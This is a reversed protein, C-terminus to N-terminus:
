MRLPIKPFYVWRVILNLLTFNLTSLCEPSHFEAHWSDLSFSPSRLSESLYSVGRSRFTLSPFSLKSLLNLLTATISQTSLCEPSHFEAHWYDHSLSQSSLSEPSHFEAYDFM